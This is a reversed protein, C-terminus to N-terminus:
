CNLPLAETFGISGPNGLRGLLAMSSEYETNQVILRGWSLSLSSLFPRSSPRSLPSPSDAAFCHLFGSSLCCLLQLLLTRAPDGPHPRSHRTWTFALAVHASVTALRCGSMQHCRWARDEWLGPQLAATNDFCKRTM